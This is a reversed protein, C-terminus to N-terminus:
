GLGHKSDQWMLPVLMVLQVTRARGTGSWVSVCHFRLNLMIWCWCHSPIGQNAPISAHLAAQQHSDNNQYWLRWLWRSGIKFRNPHNLLPMQQIQYHLVSRAHIEPKLLYKWCSTGRLIDWWHAYIPRAAKKYWSGILGCGFIWSHHMSGRIIARSVFAGAEVM